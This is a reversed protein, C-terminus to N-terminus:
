NEQHNCKQRPGQEPSIVVRSWFGLLAPGLAYYPHRKDPLSLIGACLYDSGESFVTVAAKTKFCLYSAGAAITLLRTSLRFPM